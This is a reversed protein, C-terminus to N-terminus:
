DMAFSTSTRGPAVRFPDMSGFSTALLSACRLRTGTVLTNLSTLIGTGGHISHQCDFILEMLRSRPVSAQIVSMDIPGNSRCLDVLVVLSRIFATLPLIPLHAISVLCYAISLPRVLHPKLKAIVKVLEFSWERYTQEDIGLFGAIVAETDYVTLFLLAWLLHVPRARPALNFTDIKAWLFTCTSPSVGFFARFRRLETSFCRGDAQHTIRRGMSMFETPKMSIRMTKSCTLSPLRFRPGHFINGLLPASSIISSHALYPHFRLLRVNGFQVKRPTESVEFQARIARM